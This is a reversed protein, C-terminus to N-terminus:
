LRFNHVIWLARILVCRDCGPTSCIVQDEVDAPFLGLCRECIDYIFVSCNGCVQYVNAYSLSQLLENGPCLLKFLDIIDKAAETTICHRAISSLIAMCAEEQASFSKQLSNDNPGKDEALDVSEHDDIDSSSDGSDSFSDFAQSDFDNDFSIETSDSCDSESDRSACKGTFTEIECTTTEDFPQTEAENDVTSQIGELSTQSVAFENTTTEIEQLSTIEHSRLKAQDVQQTFFRSRPIWFSATLQVHSALWTSNKFHDYRTLKPVAISPDNIYKKYKRKSYEVTISCSYYKFGQLM